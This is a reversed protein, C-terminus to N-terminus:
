LLILYTMSIVAIGMVSAAMVNPFALTASNPRGDPAIVLDLTCTSNYDPFIKSKRACVVTTGHDKKDLTLQVTFSVDGKKDPMKSYSSNSSHWEEFLFWQLSVTPNGANSSCSLSVEDGDSLGYSPTKFCSMDGSPPFFVDVTKKDKVGRADCIYKGKEERKISWVTMRLTYTGDEQQYFGGMEDDDGPPKPLSGETTILTSLSSQSDTLRSIALIDSDVQFEASVVCVIPIDDGERIVDPVTLTVTLQSSAFQVAMLLILLQNTFYKMITNM